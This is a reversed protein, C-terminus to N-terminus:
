GTATQGKQLELSHKALQEQLVFKQVKGTPTMPLQSVFSWYLPAKHAALGQRCFARMDDASPTPHDPKLQVIAAIQEGWKEDPVGIVAVSAVSPHTSLYEEIERPYINLGGRIIMDKLRGTVTIFGREDMQGLDGMHLWGESDITAATEELMEYYSRMNALGRCCIEGREGVPVPEGTELNAIKVELEPVPRGVTNAQDEPSDDLRTQSIVGHMETQGFLITFGCELTEKTRRVLAASVPAAGSMIAKLKSLDRQALEPHDLVAQLMTPVLLTHTGQCSELLEIMLGPEFVPAIVFTGRFCLISMSTVSGGGIHYMPMANVNVDGDAVGAREGIYRSNNILGTHHLVAGKPFGTTGSTYQIQFPATPAVKPLEASPDGEDAIAERDDMSFVERLEPLDGRLEDVVSMMDFGRYEPTLFLGSAGSQRLVFGLEVTRYAPNIPVLVMGAMTIGQRVIMWEASNPAWIAIREGPSFRKLLGRALQESETLFEAYTWSRRGSPDEVGDVLAVRDPVESAVRRLLDGVSLDWIDDRKTAPWYSTVLPETMTTM